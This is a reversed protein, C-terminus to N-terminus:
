SRPVSYGLRNRLRPVSFDLFARLKLPVLRQRPYVLNVPLPLPLHDDLLTVLAGSKVLDEILYPIVRAIGAGGVAASIAAEVSNVVLRWPVDISTTSGASRFKWVSGILILDYAICDHSLLDAPTKPIGRSELYAPSACMVGRIAGVRTAILSSDPLEGVRLAVDVHEDILNVYKDNLRVRVRIDPHARLFEVVVPLLHSPGLVHPASIVLEGQPQSYEGSAVREAEAVDEMIQRCADVYAIGADTLTLKRTGRLLLRVRLEEELQSVRRSVTPLPVRLRRSAASLSGADVVALLTTM